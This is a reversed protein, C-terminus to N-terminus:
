KILLMKKSASFDGTTIKYYYVGSPVPIGHRNRGDWILTYYGPPKKEDVLRRVEQGLINYVVLKVQAQAPLQYRINTSPNFPNPYNQLLAFTEPLAVDVMIPGHMQKDGSYSVDELKYYYKRGVVVDTDVFTYQG